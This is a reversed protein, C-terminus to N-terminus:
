RRATSRLHNYKRFTNARLHDDTTLKDLFDEIASRLANFLTLLGISMDESTAVFPENTPWITVSFLNWGHVMKCRYLDYIREADAHYEDPFHRRVFKVIQKGTGGRYGYEAVADLTCMLAIGVVHGRHELSGNVAQADSIVNQIEDIMSQYFIQRLIPIVDRSENNSLDPWTSPQWPLFRIPASTPADPVGPLHVYAGSASESTIKYKM